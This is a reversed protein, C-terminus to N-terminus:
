RWDLYERVISNITKKNNFLYAKLLKSKSQDEKIDQLVKIAVDELENVICWFIIVSEADDWPRSLFEPNQQTFKNIGACLRQVESVVVGVNMKKNKYYDKLGKAAYGIRVMGGTNNIEHWLNCTDDQNLKNLIRNVVDSQNYSDSDVKRMKTKQDEQHIFQKAKSVTYETIRLEMNMDFTNDEDYVNSLALFRHYGDLIDFANLKNIFLMRLKDNYEYEYDADDAGFALTIVNPIYNGSKILQTIEKVAKYNVFPKYVVEEGKVLMRLARQTVVNYHLKQADRLLMLEQVSITGIWQDKAVPNMKYKLPFKLSKSEFIATSYDSIEKANYYKNVEKPLVEQAIWYLELDNTDSLPKRGALLDSTLEIPYNHINHLRNCITVLEDTKLKRFKFLLADELKGKDKIM